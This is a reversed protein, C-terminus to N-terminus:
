LFGYAFWGGDVALMEGIVFAAEDFAPFIASGVINDIGGVRKLPMRDVIKSRDLKGTAM